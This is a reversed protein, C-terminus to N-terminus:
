VTALVTFTGNLAEIKTPKFVLGGVSIAPPIIFVGKEFTVDECFLEKVKDLCVGEGCGPEQECPDPYELEYNTPSAV